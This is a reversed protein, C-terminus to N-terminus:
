ATRPATLEAEPRAPAKRARLAASPGCSRRNGTARPHRSFVHDEDAVHREFWYELYRILGFVNARGEVVERLTKAVARLMLAHHAAHDGFALGMESALREELSYHEQLAELLEDALNQPLHNAELCFTKIYVLRKFLGDHMEDLEFVGTVLEPPLLRPVWDPM